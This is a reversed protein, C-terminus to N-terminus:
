SSIAGRRWWTGSRMASGTSRRCSRGASSRCRWRDATRTDPSRSRWARRYTRFVDPNHTFVIVPADDTVGALARHVDHKGEWFDSVGVVWFHRAGDISRAEDELTPIGVAHLADLVRPADVWWDHNGLVAYVGLPARLPGLGRAVEEPSVFTGGLVGKILYDGTLLVLDAGAANTEAVVRALKDPGNFPSGVHLDTLVAIRLGDLLRADSGLTITHPVVHLSAPELWFARM